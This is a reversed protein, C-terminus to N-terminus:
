MWTIRNNFVHIFHDITAIRCETTGHISARVATLKLKDREAAVATEARGAAIFIGHFASGTHGKFQNINLVAVTNKCNIFLEPIKKEFVTREEVEKKMSDGANDGSHEKLLIFGHIESRTKDHHKM